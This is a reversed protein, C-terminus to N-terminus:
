HFCWRSRWSAATSNDIQLKSVHLLKMCELNNTYSSIM